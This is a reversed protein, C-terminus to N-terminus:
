EEEKTDESDEIPTEQFLAIVKGKEENKRDERMRKPSNYRSNFILIVAIIVIVGLIILPM